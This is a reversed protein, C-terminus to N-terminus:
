IHILSLYLGPALNNFTNTTSRISFPSGNLEIIEYNFPEVGTANALITFSGDDDCRIATLSTFDFGDADYEFEAITCLQSRVVVYTGSEQVNLVPIGDNLQITNVISGADNLRRLQFTSFPFNSEETLTIDFSGCKFDIDIDSSAIELGIVNSVVQITEGTCESIFEAVYQGAPVFELGYFVEGGSNETVSDSNELDFPLMQSFTPPASILTAQSNPHSTVFTLSGTGEECAPNTVEGAEFPVGTVTFMFESTVCGESLQIVYDGSPLDDVDNCFEVIPRGTPIPYPGPFNPDFDFPNFGAPSELISLFLNSSANNVAFSFCQQCNSLFNNAGFPNLTPVTVLQPALEFTVGCNDEIMFSVSMGEFYPVTFCGSSTRRSIENQTFSFSMAALGFSSPPAVIVDIELPLAINDFVDIFYLLNLKVSDCTENLVNQQRVYFASWNTMRSGINVGVVESNGCVDFLTISYSGAVLNSIFPTSIGSMNIPGSVDMSAFNGSM